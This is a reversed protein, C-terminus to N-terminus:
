TTDPLLSPAPRGRLFAQVADALFNFVSRGQQACTTVVTWIRECWRQGRDGRTGQTLRRHIAVFRIAQEALNNTPEVQPTTIFRFYSDLHEVFRDALNGAQATGPLHLIADSVLKNRVAALARRFSAESAYLEQRHIIGFLQRLHELLMQGYRRNAPLPHEALFKVDRILHALCFQVAVGFDKMYKRYASFYDCGLLGNFEKGLVAVLVDSGRSPDIRFLTYLAARFCWTWLRQGQDPHGTEDVNLRAEAPLAAFLEEYTKALSASVKQVLKALQGRSITVGVVDRLFKRITSFSCHCAGKLFGVLATLRPGVLGTKTVEAPLPAYHLKQCLPCWFALARHEKIRIPKAVIEVQQVLRPLSQADELPGQCDPCCDLTYDKTTDIQEPPFAPRQHRPHGPQGGRQRKANNGKPRDKPPKVIDSSPPKSSNGSDKRAAALQAELEAVRERLRSCEPCRTRTGLVEM